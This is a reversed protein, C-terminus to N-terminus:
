PTVDTLAFTGLHYIGGIGSQVTLGKFPVGEGQGIFLINQSGDSACDIPDDITPRELIFGAVFRIVDKFRERAM